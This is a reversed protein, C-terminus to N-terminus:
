ARLASALAADNWNRRRNRVRYGIRQRRHAHLGVLQRQRRRPHPSQDIGCPRASHLRSPAIRVVIISSPVTGIESKRSRDERSTVFHGVLVVDEDDAPAIRRHCGRDTRRPEAHLPNLTPPLVEADARRCCGAYAYSGSCACSAEPSSAPSRDPLCVPLIQQAHGAPLGVLM